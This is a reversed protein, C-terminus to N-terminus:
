PLGPIGIATAMKRISPRPGIRQSLPAGAGVQQPSGYTRVLKRAMSPTCLTSGAARLMGQVCLLAGAVM